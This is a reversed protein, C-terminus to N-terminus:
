KNPNSFSSLKQIPPVTRAAPCTTRHACRTCVNPHGVTPWGQQQWSVLEAAALKIRQLFEQQEMSGMEVEFLQYRSGPGYSFVVYLFRWRRQPMNQQALWLYAHAQLHDMAYFNGWGPKGNPGYKSDLTATAKLDAVILPEGERHFLTMDMTGEFFIDEYDPIPATMYIAPSTHGDPTIISFGYQQLVPLVRQSQQEIRKHDASKGRSTLAPMVVPGSKPPNQLALWEFYQGLKQAQSPQEARQGTLRYEYYFRPCMTEEEIDKVLSQSLRLQQTPAPEPEELVGPTAALFDDVATLAM